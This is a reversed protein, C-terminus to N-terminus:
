FLRGKTVFHFILAYALVSYGWVAGTMTILRGVIVPLSEPSTFLTSTAIFLPSALFIALMLQKTTLPVRPLFSTDEPKQHQLWQWLLLALFPLGLVTSGYQLAKYVPLSRGVILISENLAPLLDVGWQGAHTFADWAQHTLSGFVIATVLFFLVRSSVQLAPQSQRTIRSQVKLPLLTVIPIKIIGQFGYYVLLGLPLCASFLGVWSHTIQYNPSFPIFLPLDPILSGIVLASFPLQRFRKAAPIVAFIHTPTFPM